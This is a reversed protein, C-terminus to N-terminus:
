CSMANSELLNYALSVALGTYFAMSLYYPPWCLFLSFGTSSNIHLTSTFYMFLPKQSTGNHQLQFPGKANLKLRFFPSCIHSVVHYQDQCPHGDHKLLDHLLSHTWRFELHERGAFFLLTQSPSSTINGMLCQFATLSEPCLSSPWHHFLICLSLSTAPLYPIYTHPWTYMHTCHTHVHTHTHASLPLILSQNKATAITFFM